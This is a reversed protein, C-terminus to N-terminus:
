MYADDWNGFTLYWARNFYTFACCDGKNLEVESLTNGTRNVIPTGSSEARVYLNASAYRTVLIYIRIFASDVASINAMYQFKSSIASDTPLTIITNSSPQYAYCRCYSLNEANIGKNFMAGEIFSTMGRLQTIGTAKLAISPINSGANANLELAYAAGVSSTNYNNILATVTVGGSSVPVLNRGFAIRTGTGQMDIYGIDKGVSNSNCKLWGDVITFGGLYAKNAFISDVNILSTKIYGGEIITTGLMAQSITGAPITNWSAMTGLSSSDAKNNIKTQASSDLMNFTVKGVLDVKSASITITTATQNITSVITNGNELTKSAWLNNGTATTIWGASQTVIGALTRNTETVTATINNAFIQFQALQSTHGAVTNSVSSVSATISDSFVKFDAKTEYVGLDPKDSLNNYGSSGTTITVNGIITGNVLDIIMKRDPDSIIDTFVQGPLLETFGWMRAISRIGDLEPNIMWALLHYYGAVEEFAIATPTLVFVGATGNKQVKAYLYYKESIDTLPSSDFAPMDWYKYETPLHASSVTSIGLTKHQIIGQPCRFIKTDNSYTPLYNVRKPNTKSDVFVFQLQEDGLLVQMTHVTIPNIAESFYLKAAQLMEDTIKADQYRRISYAEGYNIRQETDLKVDQLASEIREIRSVYLTDSIEVDLETDGNVSKTYAQIRLEVRGGDVIDNDEVVVVRGTQIREGLQRFYLPNVAGKYSVKQECIQAIAEEAKEKLEREAADIYAQPM